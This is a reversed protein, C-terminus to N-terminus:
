ISETIGLGVWNMGRTDMALCDMRSGEMGIWVLAIRGSGNRDLKSCDSRIWDLGM